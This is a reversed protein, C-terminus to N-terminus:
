EGFGKQLFQINEHFSVLNQSQFDHCLDRLGVQICSIIKESHYQLPFLYLSTTKNIRLQYHLRHMGLIAKCSYSYNPLKVMSTQRSVQLSIVCPESLHTQLRIPHLM